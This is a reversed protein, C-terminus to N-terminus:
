RLLDLGKDSLYNASQKASIRLSDTASRSKNWYIESIIKYRTDTRHINIILYERRSITGDTTAVLLYVDVLSSGWSVCVVGQDWVHATFPSFTSTQTM